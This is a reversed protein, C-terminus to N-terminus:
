FPLATMRSNTRLWALACRHDLEPGDVDDAHPLEDFEEALLAAEEAGQGPGHEPEEHHSVAHAGEDFGM